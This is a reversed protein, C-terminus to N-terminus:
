SLNTTSRDLYSAAARLIDPSDKFLGIAMNCTSCLLGRVEKSTHCHDVHLPKKGPPGLCIACVGKQSDEMSKYKELTLGYKKKIFYARQLSPNAQSGILMGHTKSSRGWELNACKSCLDGTGSLLSSARVEGEVGCACRCLWMRARFKNNAARRIVTRTGFIKGTLDAFGLCKCSRSRGTRLETSSLSSEKGCSCKVVWCTKGSSSETDLRIATWHGFVRGTLDETDKKFGM